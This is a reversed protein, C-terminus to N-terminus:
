NVAVHQRLCALQAVHTQVLRGDFNRQFLQYLFVALRRNIPRTNLLHRLRNADILRALRLRQHEVLLLDNARRVLRFLIQLELFDLVWQKRLPDHVARTQVFAESLRVAYLVAADVVEHPQRGSHHHHVIEAGLDTDRELAPLWGEVDHHDSLGSTRVLRRRNLITELEKFVGCRQLM